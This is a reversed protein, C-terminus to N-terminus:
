NKFDLIKFVCEENNRNEEVNNKKEKKMERGRNTDHENM